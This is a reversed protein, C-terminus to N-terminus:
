GLREIPGGKARASGLQRLADQMRTHCASVAASPTEGTAKIEFAAGNINIRMEVSCHWKTPALLFMQPTGYRALDLLLDEM